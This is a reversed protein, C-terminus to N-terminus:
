GGGVGRPATAGVWDLTWGVVQDRWARRSFTHDASALDHRVVNDADILRQWNPSRGVCDLFEKATLDNGSLIVLVNGEFKDLGAAMRDPFPQPEAARPGADDAGAERAGGASRVMAFLSALSSGFDVGGGLLKKWFAWQLLKRAYYHKLYTRAIGDETRVWPNLIAVGAVRPDRWAYMLIASAGDCLGWLYVEELAPCREVFCDVAASIDDDLHEFDIFDGGSDGKGRCDFRLVPVGARAWDRAMMVFQRHSGSRVQPGGVVIVVGRRADSGAGHLVGIM